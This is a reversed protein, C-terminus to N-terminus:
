KLALLAKKIRTVAEVINENSTAYSLRITTPEGFGDGPMTVVNVSELIYNIMDYSNKIENNYYKSVNLFIYFAGGPVVFSVDDIKSLEGCILDRREEYSVRMKEVEVDVENNTLAELGAYQAISNNHHTIQSQISLIKKALKENSVSYGIRWGTMAYSKSFGNIIITNERMKDSIKAISHFRNDDFMIKEYIEDSIVYLDHEEVIKAIAELEELKYAMGTPNNPSNIIVAKTKDTIHRKFDELDIKYGNEEHTQVIVPTGGYFSVLSPYSVWYPSFIIVEDHFNVIASLTNSVAQKGGNSVVVNEPGCVVGDEETTKKAIAERLPLIGAVNGYRTKGSDIADKAAECIPLPTDFDPEGAGLSIIDKGSEKLEIARSTIEVTPSEEIQMARNSFEKM